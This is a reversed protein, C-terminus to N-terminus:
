TKILAIKADDNKSVEKYFNRFDEYDEKPFDGDRIIFERIYILKSEDIVNLNSKYGGFKNNITVNNPKSEIKYGFPLKIEISDVDKFGRKIQFPLKRLRYRDPIHINRNVINLDFLMRNGIIKSYNPANFSVKELFAISDKDNIISIENIDLGNIYSWRRKYHADLDRESETDLWYKKDYKIGKSVVNVNADITGENSISFVGKITQTNEEYKYEKTHKIEGGEPTIVLVDRDDTFNGIFGFPLKQNTCELWIDEGNAQPINLIAHNGQMSAFDKEISKQSGRAYVITYYSEIGVEKLLAMTYNTLAKCDGYSLQDVKSVNFPKWGGIGVQVSIYRVKNQIFEYIKKAKDIVNTEGEVLRQIALRTETPLDHTDKILNNYMWRGFDEWNEVEAYVGKLAFKNAGVLVIPALVSLSPSYDEPTIAVINEVKFNIKNNKEEKKLNFNEFGKEKTRITIEEPYTISYASNEVSLYYDNVPYYPQIFATNKNITECIFEITYPYSVPTYELYKGRSDSYLTGGAVASVDKFDREKFKKILNGYDDYVLVQLKKIKINDDYYVYTDINENGQKNLVTIVRKQTEYMASPSELTIDLTNLRVVANADKKLNDPINRSSYINDQSFCFVSSLFFTFIIIQRGFM